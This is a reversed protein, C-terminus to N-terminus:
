RFDTELGKNLQDAMEFIVDESYSGPSNELITRGVKRHLSLRENDPILSYAANQIRDHAFRYEIKMGGTDDLVEMEILKYLPGVPFVLGETVAPALADVVSKLSNDVSWALVNIGFRNGLCAGLRLFNGTVSPLKQIKSAMLNAVNDTIAWQQIQGMAWIWGRAERSFQILGEEYLSKLFEKVFFPNGATKQYILEALHIMRLHDRHLTDSILEVVHELQLRELRLVNASVNEKRMSELTMIIPHHVDVEEDRFSVILLLCQTEPDTMTLELLQLSSSDAWQVDDLFIVLPIGLRCFIHIFDQFVLRFRNLAEIPELEPVPTQSGVILELEPIVDIMVQCNPGLAVLISKGWQKLKEDSESLLQNILERFPAVVGQLINRHLQDFKGSLFYGRKSTIPKCLQRVLSTKGIGAEGCVVAIEKSGAAVRDFSTMLGNIEYDRGYLQPSIVFKQPIDSCGLTFTENARSSRVLNLCLELDAKIGLASQYRDEANKAMLKLVINAVSEPLEDNVENPSMPNRAVHFHVLELPDLSKCPLNGTFLEYLTVGLSYYDARHDIQRNMRGTQEPSMYKLSGELTKPSMLVPVDQALDTAIGFDIIKLEGSIPDFIINSPNIDKHIINASHINELADGIRIAITLREELTFPNSAMLLDLSKGGFDELELVLGNRYKELGYVLIVGSLTKLSLEIRYEQKYKVIDEPAPHEERLMKLIVPLQESGRVARYITSTRSEYIKDLVRCDQFKDM